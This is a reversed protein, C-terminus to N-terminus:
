GIRMNIGNILLLPLSCVKTRAKFEQEFVHLRSIDAQHVKHVNMLPSCWNWQGFAIRFTPSTQLPKWSSGDLSDNRKVGMSGMVHSLVQDGCCQEKAYDEWREALQKDAGFTSQLAAGSIAFGAGGHAFNEGLRFAPSGILKPSTHDFTALWAYLSEWFFYNDDEMYIYWKKGPMVAAVHQFMPLFKYKDLRWGGPLYLDGEMSGSELYLNDSSIEKVKHYLTFDPSTKLSASVNALSDIVPNGNINDPSDSYYLVNPTLKPNGLTTSMHMPMRRWISSAGTKVVIVVDKPDLGGVENMGEEKESEEVKAAPTETETKTEYRLTEQQKTEAAVSNGKSIEEPKPDQVVVVGDNPPPAAVEIQKPTTPELIAERSDFAGNESMAMLLFMAFLFAIWLYSKSHRPLFNSVSMNSRKRERERL